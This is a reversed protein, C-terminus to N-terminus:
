LLREINEWFPDSKNLHLHYNPVKEILKAISKLRRKRIEGVGKPDISPDPLAMAQDAVEQMLAFSELTSLPKIEVEDNPMLFFIASLPIGKTSEYCIEYYNYAKTGPWPHAFYNGERDRVILTLDDSHKKWTQDPVRSTATTKGIGSEGALIIAKNEYELMIGHLLIGGYLENRVAVARSISNLQLRLDYLDDFKFDDLSLLSEETQESLWRFIDLYNKTYDFFTYPKKYVFPYYPYKVCESLDVELLPLNLMRSARESIGDIQFKSRFCWRNGNEFTLIRLNIM